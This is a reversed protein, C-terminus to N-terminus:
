VQRQTAADDRQAAAYGPISKETSTRFSILQETVPHILVGFVLEQPLTRMCIVTTDDLHAPFLWGKIGQPLLYLDSVDRVLRGDGFHAHEAKAIELGDPEPGVEYIPIWLIEHGAAFWGMVEMEIPTTDPTLELLCKHSTHTFFSPTILINEL